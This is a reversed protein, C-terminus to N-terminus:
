TARTWAPSFRSPTVTAKTPSCKPSAAPFKTDIDIEDAEIRGNGSVIGLPLGGQRAHWWYAGGGCAGIIVIALLALGKWRSRGRSRAIPAPSVVPLTPKVPAVANDLPPLVDGHRVEADHSLNSPASADTHDQSM